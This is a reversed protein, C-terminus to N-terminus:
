RAPANRRATLWADWKAPDAGPDDGELKTIARRFSLLVRETIVAGVRVDLVSGHSVVDVKPDAIFSSQAVEVDFDRIYSQQTIFAVNARTGPSDGGAAAYPAARVLPEVSAREGLAALADAARERAIPHSHVLWASLYESAPATIKSASALAVVKARVEPAPDFVASRLVFQRNKAETERLWLAENAVLRQEITDLARAQDRLKDDISATNALVRATAALRAPSKKGKASALVERMRAEGILKRHKAPVIEPELTTLFESIREGVDPPLQQHAMAQDLYSWMDEELAWSQATHALQLCAFASRGCRAAMGHLDQRLEEASRIRVVEARAVTVGGSRTEVRVTNGQVEVTGYLTRGNQLVVEDARATSTWTLTAALLGLKFNTTTM